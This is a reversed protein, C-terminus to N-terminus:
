HSGAPALEHVEFRMEALDGLVWTPPAALGAVTGPNVLWTNTGIVSAVQRVQARHSHGCCVLDWDGTCAFAAGYDDYHVVFIRRGALELRADVGHYRLLGGSARALGHLAQPDGANNGHILHVPLGLALAPRLTQAGILDGCHIVAEAGQAQANRVAQALADARDHSDSVICVKM